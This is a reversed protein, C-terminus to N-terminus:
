NRKANIVQLECYADIDWRDMQRGIGSWKMGGFPVRRDLGGHQNIWCTGSEIQRAIEIGRNLDRTWVSGGLGFHTSNARKVVDDLDTFPIVPLVPGFQEEDVLRTGDYIETVITLPYFYGPCNMPQGGTIIKGGSQRADEVLEIVRLFQNKNNVPGLQTEPDMGNGVKVSQAIRALEQVLPQYINEHVYLRKIAICVQGNNSFAGWFLDHSVKEPDVDPLVIAPDNGGLELVMRKLDDGASVAIKKGTPISGTFSIKRVIPHRVLYEGTESGGSVITLVGKPLVEQLLEGVRITSLPTFPSPKIVMTNGTLLAVSITLMATLIPFNWPEIGAVVGLPIRRIEVFGTDDDQIIETPIAQPATNEIWWASYNVEGLADKFPKGQEATLIKAISESNARIVEACRVLLQRRLAEDRQWSYFAQHAMDLVHDLFEGGCEPCHAITEETAPNIVAFTESKIREQNGVPSTSHTTM